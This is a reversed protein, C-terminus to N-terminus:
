FGYRLQILGQVAERKWLAFTLKLQDPTKDSFLKQIESENRRASWAKQSEAAHHRGRRIETVMELSNPM